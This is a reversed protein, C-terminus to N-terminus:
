MGAINYEDGVMYKNKALHLDLFHLQRKIEMTFRDIPYKQKVDAYTFFHGFGGGLFPASGVQWFVWNLTATRQKLDEPLFAKYKEALYMIISGSEFIDLPEQGPELVRMAPIKSNPNISVFGSSFQDENMIEILWADYDVQYGADILEELMVTVKQGNPTGLSYLQIPHKGVPLTKEFRAGATPRNM